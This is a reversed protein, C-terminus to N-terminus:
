SIPIARGHAFENMDGSTDTVTAFKGITLGAYPSLVPHFEM